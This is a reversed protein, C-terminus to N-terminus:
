ANMAFLDAEAIRRRTLGAMVKGGAHNWKQFEDKATPDKTNIKKLLTSIKFAGAGLNYAFSICADFVPQAVPVTIAASIIPELRKVEQRLLADAEPETITQDPHAGQTSGYGVTWVGVADRYSQLRLGEFSKILSYARDSATM